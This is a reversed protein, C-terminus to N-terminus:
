EGAGPCGKKRTRHRARALHNSKQPIRARLRLHNQHLRGFMSVLMTGFSIPTRWLHLFPSFQGTAKPTECVILYLTMSKWREWGLWVRTQSEVQRFVIEVYENGAVGDEGRIWEGM